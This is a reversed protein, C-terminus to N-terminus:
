LFHTPLTNVFSIAFGFSFLRLAARHLTHQFASGSESGRLGHPCFTVLRSLSKSMLRPHVAGPGGMTALLMRRKARRGDRTRLQRGGFGLMQGHCDLPVVAWGVWIYKANTVIRFSTRKPQPGSVTATITEHM